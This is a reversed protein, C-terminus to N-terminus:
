PDATLNIAGNILCSSRSADWQGSLTNGSDNLTLTLEGCLTTTTSVFYNELQSLSQLVVDGAANATGTLRYEADVGGSSDLVLLQARVDDNCRNVHLVVNEDSGLVVNATGSYRNDLSQRNGIFALADTASGGPVFRFPATLLLQVFDDFSATPFQDFVRGAFDANSRLMNAAAVSLGESQDVAFQDVFEDTTLQLILILWLVQFFAETKAGIHSDHADCSYNQLASRLARDFVESTVVGRLPDDLVLRWSERTLQDVGLEFLEDLNAGPVPESSAIADRVGDFLERAFRDPDDRLNATASTIIRLVAFLESLSPPDVLLFEATSIVNGVGSGGNSDSGGCAVMTALSVALVLNRLRQLM